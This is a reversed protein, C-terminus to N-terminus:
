WHCHTPSAHLLPARDGGLGLPATLTCSSLASTRCVDGGAKKQPSAHWQPDQQGMVCSVTPEPQNAAAPGSCWRGRGGKSKAGSQSKGYSKGLSKGKQGHGHGEYKWGKGTRLIECSVPSPNRPNSIFARQLKRENIHPALKVSSGVDYGAKKM